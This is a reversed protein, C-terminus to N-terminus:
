KGYIGNGNTETILQKLHEQIVEQHTPETPPIWYPNEKEWWDIRM